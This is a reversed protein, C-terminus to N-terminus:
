RAWPWPGKIPLETAVGLRIGFVRVRHDPGPKPLLGQPLELDFGFLGKHPFIRHPLLQATPSSFVEKGDAFVIVSDARHNLKPVAAWGNFVDLAGPKVQVHGRLGGARIPILRGESSRILEVGGRRVLETTESTGRLSEFTRRGGEHHVVLITVANRGNHLSSEPVMGGFGTGDVGQFTRTMAEIRGNVAIAIEEDKGHEGTLGGQIWAPLLDTRRDVVNLLERGDLDVGANESPEVPLRSLPQGILDSDSGIRYISAPTSGFISLQRLLAQHRRALLKSLPATQVTGDGLRVEVTGDRALRRGVLPKGDVHWPIRVGLVKAITPVIDITQAFGKDVRGTHQHPLKVFLPMFAIDQLNGSTPKRRPEGSRYSVGHDATVIVLARDFIGKAKLRRVLLGLARDTYEAQLLFRQYGQIAPWDGQPVNHDIGRLLPAQVGYRRGSPLYLYPVHPLLSHLVYLTPKGGRSFTSIFGCVNRGCPELPGAPEQKEPAEAKGFNGWSDSIEPIEESYPEPLLLHLYVISADNALSSSTDSVASPSAGRVEKCLKQPCLQTLSEVARVRYSGGLLTFVNNPHDAYIPLLQHGKPPLIWTLLAPVAQETLWQVTTASHYWTSQRALAAFNPYRAADIGEDRNMLSIPTFEDFVILVVPTTSHIRHEAVHPHKVFVLKSADSSFLFLALFILPVPALVTLFSGVPSSLRYLLAGLLGVVAAVVLASAGSLSSRNTLAHLVIVAVLGAVFGVHLVDAAHRSFVRVLLEAALLVAPPVLVLFLAFLVIQTSTSRRVSFFEPNRGLIDLLPEALAFCSLVTLRAGHVLATRLPGPDPKPAPM